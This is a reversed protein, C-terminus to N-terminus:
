NNSYLFNNIIQNKYFHILKGKRFDNEHRNYIHGHDNNNIKVNYITSLLLDYM